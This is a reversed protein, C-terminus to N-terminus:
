TRLIGHPWSSDIAPVETRGREDRFEAEIRKAWALPIPRRQSVKLWNRATEASVPPNTQKRAWEPVMMGRKLLAVRWPWELVVRGNTRRFGVGGKVPKAKDAQRLVERLHRGQKALATAEDRKKRAEQFAQHALQELEEELADRKKRAM